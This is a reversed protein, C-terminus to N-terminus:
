FKENAAVKRALLPAIEIGQAALGAAVKDLGITDAWFMPGGTWAPWGYGNLWVIDIDSARQAMREDLIAAGENIMPFLLRQKIEDASFSRQPHGSRAVFEAIIAEVEPSPSPRRNEDYDYYGKGTKQGRRDRECLVDRITEGKSAERSWGIDLGALDSMQFPGMPFGFETLARDVDWPKAGELILAQAGLQRQRLMRNGIFGPCVGAVVAIKGIRRAIEMCTKLTSPSTRAGRVIELLRMVNAPSFFHLGLVAEPRKTEAAMEDVNLYSTNSALIAGDKVIADLRRFVDKKIDMNEFVAEIVLDCDALATYDLSPTLRGMAAEVDAATLRGRKATSEYNKRMIAVGRDLPAQDREVITVPFGASLFNMAIGGGMTGAGLVGVKRIPIVPTDAPIDDIKAAAREAFFVHQLARSQTGAFLKLILERERRVGEAFPLEVAARVAEICAEPADLGRFRRAHEKRFRDFMEPDARGEALKDDRRSAIPHASRAAVERAFAVADTELSAEGALRDVLGVSHAQEAPIPDGIAIMELAKAPGVVRPLRQTGGAGPLIGLKV